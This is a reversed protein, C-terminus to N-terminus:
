SSHAGFYVPGRIRLTTPTNTTSFSRGSIAQSWYIAMACNRKREAFQWIVDLIPFVDNSLTPGTLARPAFCSDLASTIFGAVQRLMAHLRLISLSTAPPSGISSRAKWAKPTMPDQAQLARKYRPLHIMVLSFNIVSQRVLDALMRIEEPSSRTLRAELGPIIHILALFVQHEQTERNRSTIVDATLSDGPKSTPDSM